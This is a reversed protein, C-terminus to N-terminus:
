ERDVPNQGSFEEYDTGSKKDFYVGGDVRKQILYNWGEFLDRAM